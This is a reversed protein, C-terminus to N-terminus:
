LRRPLQRDTGQRRGAAMRRHPSRDPHRTGARRLLGNGSKDFVDHVCCNPSPRFALKRLVSCAQQKKCKSTSRGQGQGKAQWSENCDESGRREGQRHQSAHASRHRLAGLHVTREPRPRPARLRRDVSMQIASVTKELLRRPCCASPPFATGWSMRWRRSWLGRSGNKRRIPWNRPFASSFKTTFLGTFVTVPKLLKWLALKQAIPALSQFPTNKSQTYTVNARLRGTLTAVDQRFLHSYLLPSGRRGAIMNILEQPLKGGQRALRLLAKWVRAQYGSDAKSRGSIVNAM